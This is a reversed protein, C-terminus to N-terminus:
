KFVQKSANGDADVVINIGHQPTEYKNGNLDYFAAPAASADSTVNNVGGVLNYEEINWFKAWNRDALYQNKTGIPVYLITSKYITSSFTYESIQPITSGVKITNLDDSGFCNGGLYIANPLYLDKLKSDAFAGSQIRKVNMFDFSNLNTCGQFLNKAIETIKPIEIYVLQKCNIFAEEGIYVANPLSIKQLGCGYFVSGWIDTVLPCFCEKLASCQSFAKSRIIKVNPADVKVLSRCSGFASEFIVSVNSLNIHRLTTCGLFAKTGIVTVDYSTGDYEVCQPIVIDTPEGTYDTLTATNDDYLYYRLNDVVIATIQNAAFCNASAVMFIALVTILHKITTKM